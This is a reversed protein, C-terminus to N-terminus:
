AACSFTRVPALILQVKLELPQNQFSRYLGETPAYEIVVDDAAHSCATAQNFGELQFASELLRKLQLMQFAVQEMTAPPESPHQKVPLGLLDFSVIPQSLTTQNSGTQYRAYQNCSM